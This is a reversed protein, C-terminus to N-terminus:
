NRYDYKSYGLENELEGKLASQLADAFLEKLMEQIGGADKFQYTTLLQKILNQREPDNKRRAMIFLRRFPLKKWVM